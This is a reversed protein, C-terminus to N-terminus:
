GDAQCALWSRRRWFGTFLTRLEDASPLRWDDHGFGPREGRNMAEVLAEADAWTAGDFPEHFGLLTGNGSWVRGTAGDRVPRHPPAAFRSGGEPPGPPQVGCAGGLAVVLLLLRVAASTVMSERRPSSRPADPEPGPAQRASSPDARSRARPSGWTASP